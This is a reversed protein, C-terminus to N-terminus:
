KVGLRRLVSQSHKIATRATSNDVSSSPRYDADVRFNQLVSLSKRVERRDSLVVTGIGDVLSALEEHGPNQRGLRYSRRKSQTAAVACYAAYYARATCSRHRNKLLLDQAALLNDKAM